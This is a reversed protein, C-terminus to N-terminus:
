QESSPSPAGILYKPMPQCVQISQQEYRYNAQRDGKSGAPRHLAPEEHTNSDENM